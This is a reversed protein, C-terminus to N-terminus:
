EVKGTRPDTDKLEKRIELNVKRQRKKEREHYVLMVKRDKTVEDDKVLSKKRPAFMAVILGVLLILILFTLAAFFLRQTEPALTSLNLRPLLRRMFAQVDPAIAYSIIAISVILLFGILPWWSRKVKKEAMRIQTM